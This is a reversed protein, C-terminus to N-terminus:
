RKEELRRLRANLEDIAKQQAQQVALIERINQDTQRDWNSKGGQELRILQISNDIRDLRAVVTAIEQRISAIERELSEKVDTLLKYLRGESAGVTERVIELIWQKDDDTLSM